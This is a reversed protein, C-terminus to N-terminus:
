KKEKCNQAYKTNKKLKEIRNKNSKIESQLSEIKQYMNDRIQANSTINYIQEFEYIKKEAVQIADAARRQASANIPIESLPDVSNISSSPSPNLKELPVSHKYRM